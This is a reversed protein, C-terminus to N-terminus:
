LRLANKKEKGFGELREAVRRPHLDDPSKRLALEAYLFDRLEEPHALGRHAMVEAGESIETENAYTAFSSNRM